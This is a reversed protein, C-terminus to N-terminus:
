GLLDRATMGLPLNFAFLACGHLLSIWFSVMLCDGCHFLSRFCGRDILQLLSLTFDRLTREVIQIMRLVSTLGRYVKERVFFM